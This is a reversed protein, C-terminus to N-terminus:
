AIPKLVVCSSLIAIDDPAMDDFPAALKLRTADIRAREDLMTEVALAEFGCRTFLALFDSHRLRNQYDAVMNISRWIGDRFRLFNIRSITKDTHEFHDSMDIAHVMVGDRSLLRAWEPLLASLVNTPIHELVTRSTIIDVSGAPQRRPDFPVRYDFGLDAPATVGNLVAALHAPEIQLGTAIRDANQRTYNLTARFTDEDMYRQVDTLIIRQAGLLFYLIPILPFWGSGIELVTSGTVERGAKLLLRIMAFANELTWDLNDVNPPYGSLARQLRRLTPRFPTATKVADRLIQLQWKM